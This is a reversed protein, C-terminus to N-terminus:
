PRRSSLDARSTSRSRGKGKAQGRGTGRAPAARPPSARPREARADPVSKDAPEAVQKGAFVLCVASAAWASAALMFVWNHQTMLGLLKLVLVVAVSSARVGVYLRMWRASAQGYLASRYLRRVLFLDLPFFLWANENPSINHVNSLLTTPVVVLGFIGTVVSFGAISLATARRLGWRPQSGTSAGPEARLCFRMYVALLALLAVSLAILLGRVFYKHPWRAPGAKREYIVRSPGALPRKLSGVELRAEAVRDHLFQPLYMEQYGDVPQDQHPGGILDFGWSAFWHGSMAELTDDRFNRGPVRNAAARRLAGKSATDIVDRVRTACNDFLQDYRYRNNPPEVAKFLHAILWRKQEAPLLLEQSILTRDLRRYREIARSYPEAIVFFDSRGRMSAWLFSPKLFPAAGYNIVIDRSEDRVRMATHGFRAWMADGPEITLLEVTADARASSGLLSLCGILLITRLLSV